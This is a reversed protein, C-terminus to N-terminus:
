VEYVTVDLGPPRVEVTVPLGAAVVVVTEPNVRSVAYVKLTVAELPKPVLVDEAAELVIVGLVQGEGGVPTVAICGAQPTVVAVM